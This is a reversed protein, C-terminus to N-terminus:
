IPHHLAWPGCLNYHVIHCLPLVPLSPHTPCLHHCLGSYYVPILRLPHCQALLSSRPRPWKSCPPCHLQFFFGISQSPPYCLRRYSFLMCGQFAIQGTRAVASTPQPRRGPKSLNSSQPMPDLMGCYVGIGMTSPCTGVELPFISDLVRSEEAPTLGNTLPLANFLIMRESSINGKPM